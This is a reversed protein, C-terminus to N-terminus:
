TWGLSVMEAVPAGEDAVEFLGERRTGNSTIGYFPNELNVKWGAVIEAVVARALTSTSYAEPTTKALGTIRPHDPKNTL